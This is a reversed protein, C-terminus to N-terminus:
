TQYSCSFGSLEFSSAARNALRFQIEKRGQAWLPTPLSKVFIASGRVIRIAFAQDLVLLRLADGPFGIILLYDGKQHTFFSSIFTQQSM